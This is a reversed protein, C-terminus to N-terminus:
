GGAQESMTMVCLVAGTPDAIVAMRGVGPIDFPPQHVTGGAAEVQAVAADVDDVQVYASWHPSMGEWEPGDMAMMGAVMAEGRYFVTYARDGEKAPQDPQAQDMDQFTWGFIERYFAKAKDPDRTALENWVFTGHEAM